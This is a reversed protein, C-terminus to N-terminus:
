PELSPWRLACLDLYRACDPPIAGRRMLFDLVVLSADATVVDSGDRQAMLRAVDDLLMLRHEAVEDDNAAPVFEPPLALDHVFIVDRHLGDPQARCIRVAGVPHATRALGADIAAEEWAERLVTQAVTTAARIGGGVLNDLLDPDIAKTRSRRAIWMRQVGGTEVVGNVHAAYTVIGFYRAAARELEFLPTGGFTSAVAYSEGRWRTLVGEAALSRAVEHLAETRSMATDLSPVFAIGEGTREFVRAFQVIRQARAADLWGATCNGVRLAVYRAVPRALAASLRAHIAAVIRDDLM